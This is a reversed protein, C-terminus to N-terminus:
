TGAPGAAETLRGVVLFDLAAKRSAPHSDPFGCPDGPPQPAATGLYFDSVGAPFRM